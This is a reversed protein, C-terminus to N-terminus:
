AESGDALGDAIDFHFDCVVAFDQHAAGVQHAAIVLILVIGRFRDDVAPQVGAVDAREVVAAIKRDGVAFFIQELRGATFEDRRLRDFVLELGASRNGGGYHDGFCALKGAGQDHRLKFFEFFVGGRLAQRKGAARLQGRMRRDDLQQLLFDELGAGLHRLELADRPESV